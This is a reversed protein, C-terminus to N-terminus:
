VDILWDISWHKPDHINLTMEVTNWYFIITTLKITQHFCCVWLFGGVKHLDIVFKFRLLKISYVKGHVPFFSLKWPSRFWNYLFTGTFGVVMIMPKFRDKFINPLINKNLFNTQKTYDVILSICPAATHM